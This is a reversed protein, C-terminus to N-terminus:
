KKNFNEILRHWNIEWESNDYASFEIYLPRGTRANRVYWDKRWDGHGVFDLDYDFTVPIYFEGQNIVAYRNTYRYLLSGRLRGTSDISFPVDQDDWLALSIRSDGSCFNRIEIYPKKQDSIRYFLTLLSDIENPFVYDIFRDTKRISNTRENHKLKDYPKRSVCANVSLLLILFSLFFKM